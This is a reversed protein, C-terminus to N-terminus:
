LGRKSNFHMIDQQHMQQTSGFMCGAIANNLTFFGSLLLLGLM